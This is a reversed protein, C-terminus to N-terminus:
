IAAQRLQARQYESVILLIATILSPLSYSVIMVFAPSEGLTDTFLSVIYALAPAIVATAILFWGALAPRRFAALLVCAVALEGVIIPVAAMPQSAVVLGTILVLRFVLSGGLAVLAIIWPVKHMPERRDRRISVVLLVLAAILGTVTVYLLELGM